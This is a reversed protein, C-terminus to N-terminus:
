EGNGERQHAAEDHHPTGYEGRQWRTDQNGHPKKSNHQITKGVTPIDDHM